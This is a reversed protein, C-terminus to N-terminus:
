MSDKEDGGLITTYIPIMSRKRVKDERLCSCPDANGEMSVIWCMVYIYEAIRGSMMSEDGSLAEGNHLLGQM